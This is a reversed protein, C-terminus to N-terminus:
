ENEEEERERERQRELAYILFATYVLIAPLMQKDESTLISTGVAFRRRRSSNSRIPITVVKM